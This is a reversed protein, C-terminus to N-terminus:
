TIPYVTTLTRASNPLQILEFSNRLNEKANSLMDKKNPSDEIDSILDKVKHKFLNVTQRTSRRKLFNEVNALEKEYTDEDIDKDEKLFKKKALLLYVYYIFANQACVKVKKALTTQYWKREGPDKSNISNNIEKENLWPLICLENHENFESVNLYEADEDDQPDFFPLYINPINKSSTDKFRTLLTLAIESTASALLKEVIELPPLPELEELILSSNMDIAKIGQENTKSKLREQVNSIIPYLDKFIDYFASDTNISKNKDNYASGSGKKDNERYQVLDKISFPISIIHLHVMAWTKFKELDKEKSKEDGNTQISCLRQRLKNLDDEIFYYLDRRIVRVCEMYELPNFFSLHRYYNANKNKVDFDNMNYATTFLSKVVWLYLEPTDDTEMNKVYHNWFGQIAEYHDRCFPQFRARYVYEVKDAITAEESDDIGRIPDTYVDNLYSINVAYGNNDENGDTIVAVVENDVLVPSGSYGEEIQELSNSKGLYFDFHLIDHNGEAKLFNEGKLGGKLVRARGDDGGDFGATVFYEGEKNNKDILIQLKNKRFKLDNVNNGLDDCAVKLVALDPAARGNIEYSPKKSVLKAPSKLISLNEPGIDTVVHWCTALLYSDGDKGIVFATGVTKSTPKNSTVQYVSRSLDGTFM